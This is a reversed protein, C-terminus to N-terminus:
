KRVADQRQLALQLLQHVAAQPSLAETDLTLANDDPLPEEFASDRGTFHAIRGDAAKKYLGKPDRAACTEYSAKVFVEVFDSPGIVSRALQRLARTPCIFSTITILGSNLYLKAVEAIRRINEARDEDSFGLNSNLGSRINDGDLIQTLFGAKHLERELANAITSKGSGSLGYLWFVLSRQRLLAEKDPRGLMRHFEPHINEM